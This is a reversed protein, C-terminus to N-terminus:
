GITLKSFNGLPPLRDRPGTRYEDWLKSWGFRVGLTDKKVGVRDFKWDRNFHFYGKVGREGM